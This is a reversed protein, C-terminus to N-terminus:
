IKPEVNKGSDWVIERYLPKSLLLKRFNVKQIKEQNIKILVVIFFVESIFNARDFDHIFFQIEKKIDETM